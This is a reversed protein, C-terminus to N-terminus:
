PTEEQAGYELLGGGLARYFGIANSLNERELELLASRVAYDDRQADLLEIRGYVGARYRLDSLDVRRAASDVAQRQANLQREFTARGALGDAVERFVSQIAREYSAIAVSKRVEALDLNGRLQGGQFIPAALQPTFSWARSSGNFLSDLALGSFGFAATLSLRPFFAARAAGVDANAAM